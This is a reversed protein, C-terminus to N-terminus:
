LLFFVAHSHVVCGDKQGRRDRAGPADDLCSGFIEEDLFEGKIRCRAHAVVGVGDNFLSAEARSLGDIPKGPRQVALPAVDARGPQLVRVGHRPLPDGDLPRVRLAYAPEADGVDSNELDGAVGVLELRAVQGAVAEGDLEAVERHGQVLSGARGLLHQGDQCLFAHRVVEPRLSEAIADVVM